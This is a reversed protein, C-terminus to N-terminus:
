SDFTDGDQKKKTVGIQIYNLVHANNNNPVTCTDSSDILNIDNVYAYSETEVTFVLGINRSKIM